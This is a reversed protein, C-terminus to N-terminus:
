EEGPQGAVETPPPRHPGAGGGAAQAVAHPHHLGALSDTGLQDGPADMGADTGEAVRLSKFSEVHAGPFTTLVAHLAALDDVSIEARGSRTYEPVLWIEGFQPSRGCVAVHLGRFDAIDADTLPPLDAAGAASGPADPPPTSGPPETVAPTTSPAAAAPTGAARSTLPSGAARKPIRAPPRASKATNSM